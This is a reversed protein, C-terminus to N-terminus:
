SGGGVPDSPAWLSNSGTEWSTYSTGIGIRILDFVLLGAFGILATLLAYEILDQGREDHFFRRLAARM